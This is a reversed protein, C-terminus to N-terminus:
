AKAKKKSSSVKKLSENEVRQVFRDYLDKTKMFSASKVEETANV